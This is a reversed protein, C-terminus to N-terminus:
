FTASALERITEELLNLHAFEFEAFSVYRRADVNIKNDKARVVIEFGSPRVEISIGGFGPPIKQNYSEATNAAAVMRAILPNTAM